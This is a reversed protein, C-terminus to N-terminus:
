QDREVAAPGAADQWGGGEGDDGRDDGGVDNEADDVAVRRRNGYVATKRALKWKAAM